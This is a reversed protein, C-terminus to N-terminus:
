SRRRLVAVAELHPSWGFQDVLVLRSLDYRGSFARLDRALTAPDCSVAVVTEIGADALSVAQGGAGARPPDFVAGDCGKLEAKELPRRFLDRAEADIPLGNARASATLAEIAGGAHDAALVSASRALPLAFTGLGCFLDAVREAGELAETVERQLAAEGEKTAQLFGGAPLPVAIQGIRVTPPTRMSLTVGEVALRAIGHAEAFEALAERAALDLDAEDIGRLDLDAGESALTTYAEFPRRLDRNLKELPRLLAFLEPHLVVCGQLRVINRSGLAHFGAAGGAVKFGARRRSQPPSHHIQTVKAEPYIQRVAGELRRVKLETAREAGLHQLTCGGCADGPQGFHPCLPAHRQPSTETHETVSGTRGRVAAVVTEGPLAFPVAVAEAVGEGKANLSDITLIRREAKPQRKRSPRRKRM